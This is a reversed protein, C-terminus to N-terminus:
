RLIRYNVAECIYPAEIIECGDLNAITRAVRIVTERTAADIGMETVAARLLNRGHEDLDLSEHHTMNDIQQRMDALTTGQLRSSM